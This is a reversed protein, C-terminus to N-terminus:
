PDEGLTRRVALALAEARHAAARGAIEGAERRVAAAAEAQFVDLAAGSEARLREAAREAERRAEAAMVGAERRAAEIVDAAQRRSEEVSRELAAEDERLRDVAGRVAGAVRADM